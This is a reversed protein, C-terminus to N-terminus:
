TLNEVSRRYRLWLGATMGFIVFAIANVAILVWDAVSLGYVFWVANGFLIAGILRISLGEASKKRVMELPQLTASVLGGIAFAFFFISKYPLLIMALIAVVLGAILVNDLGTFGKFKRLGAMIPVYFVALLGNLILALSSITLGYVLIAAYLIGHYAM